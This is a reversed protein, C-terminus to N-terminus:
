DSYKLHPLKNEAPVCIVVDGTIRVQCALRETELLLGQGKYLLEAKTRPELNGSGAVVVVKCTTCRGKGGCAHMWDIANAQVHQLITKSFDQVELTKEGLNKIVIVAM